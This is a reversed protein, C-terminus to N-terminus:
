SFFALTAGCFGRTAGPLPSAPFFDVEAFFATLAALLGAFAFPLARSPLLVAAMRARICRALPAVRASDHLGGAPLGVADTPKEASGQALLHSQFRFGGLAFVALANVTQGFLGPEPGEGARSADRRAKRSQCGVSARDTANRSVLGDIGPVAGTPGCPRGTDQCQNGCDGPPLTRTM